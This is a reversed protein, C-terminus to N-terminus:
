TTVRFHARERTAEAAFHAAEGDMWALWNERLAEGDRALGRALRVDRGAEVWVTLVAVADVARPASGCGEVVLVDPIPVDVWEAWAGSGWDYRQYRAARGTALPGLVGDELREWVGDLGSWGAYLDDLHVTTVALGESRLADALAAALTTKGSGAPGDVAVLRVPGLRPRARRVRELLAPLLPWREDDREHENV